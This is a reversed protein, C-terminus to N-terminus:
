AQTWGGLVCAVRGKRISVAAHRGYGPEFLTTKGALTVSVMVPGTFQCVYYADRTPFRGDPVSACDAGGFPHVFDAGGYKFSHPQRKLVIADWSDKPPPCPPGKIGWDIRLRHQHNWFAYLAGAPVAVALLAITTLTLRATAGRRPNGVIPAVFTM